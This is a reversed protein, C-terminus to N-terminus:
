EEVNSFNGKLTKIELDTLARWTGVPLDSDLEVNAFNTRKLYQVENGVAFLMRKVQHFKGQCVTIKIERTDIKRVSVAKCINKEGIDVGDLLNEAQLDTFPEKLKLFYTKPIKYKPAILKHSLDGDNTILLFGEADKDLRGVPSLNRGSANELFDMVVSDSKDHNATIVGSPKNFMYYQFPTYKLLNGNYEVIDCQEDVKFDPKHVVTSNVTVFGKQILKKVESRTGINHECLFRDLRM